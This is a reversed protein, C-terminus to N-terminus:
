FRQQQLMNQILDTCVPHLKDLKSKFDYLADIADKMDNQQSRSYRDDVMPACTPGNNMRMESRTEIRHLSM